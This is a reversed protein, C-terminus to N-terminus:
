LSTQWITSSSFLSPRRSSSHGFAVLFSISEMAISDPCLGSLDAIGSDYGFASPMLGLAYNEGLIGLGDYFSLEAPYLSFSVQAPERAIAALKNPM